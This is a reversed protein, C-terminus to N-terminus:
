ARDADDSGNPESADDRRREDAVSGALTEAVVGDQAALARGHALCVDRDAGWPVYVRVAAARDCGDEACTPDDGSM